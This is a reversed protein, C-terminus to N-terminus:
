ASSRATRVLTSPRVHCSRVTGDAGLEYLDAAFSRPPTRRFLVAGDPTIALPVPIGLRFNFTAAADALLQADLAPWTMPITPAKPHTCALAFVVTAAFPARLM